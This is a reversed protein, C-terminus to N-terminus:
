GEPRTHRRAIKALECRGCAACLQERRVAGDLAIEIRRALAPNADVRGKRRYGGAVYYLMGISTRARRALRQKEKTNARDMWRRFPNM